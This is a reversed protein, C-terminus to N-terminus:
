AVEIYHGTYKSQYFFTIVTEMQEKGQWLNKVHTHGPLILVSRIFVTYQMTNIAIM